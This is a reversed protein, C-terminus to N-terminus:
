LVSLSQIVPCVPTSYYFPKTNSSANISSQFHRRNFIPCTPLTPNTTVATYHQREPSFLPRSTHSKPRPPANPQPQHANCVPATHTCLALGNVSISVPYPPPRTNPTRSKQFTDLLFYLIRSPSKTHEPLTLFRYGLFKAQSGPFETRRENPFNTVLRRSELM